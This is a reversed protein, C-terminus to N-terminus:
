FLRWKVLWWLHHYNISKKEPHHFVQLVATPFLSTASTKKETTGRKGDVLPLESEIAGLFLNALQSDPSSLNGEEMKRLGDMCCTLWTDSSFWRQDSDDLSDVCAHVSQDAPGHILSRLANQGTGFTLTRLSFFFGWFFFVVSLSKRNGHWYVSGLWENMQENMWPLEM